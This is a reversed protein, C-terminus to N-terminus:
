GAKDAVAHCITGRKEIIIKIFILFMMVNVIRKRLTLKNARAETTM